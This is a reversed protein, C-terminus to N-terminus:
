VIMGVFQPDASGRRRMATSMAGRSLREGAPLLVYEDFVMYTPSPVHSADRFSKRSGLKIPNFKSVILYLPIPFLNAPRGCYWWSILPWPIMAMIVKRKM